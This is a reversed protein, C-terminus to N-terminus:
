PWLFTVLARYCDEDLPVERRPGSNTIELRLVGRSLGTKIAIVV